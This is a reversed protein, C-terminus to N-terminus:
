WWKRRRFYWLMGAAIAVMSLVVVAFSWSQEPPPWMGRVLNM